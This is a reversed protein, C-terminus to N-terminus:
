AIIKMNATLKKQLFKDVQEGPVDLNLLWRVSSPVQFLQWYKKSIWQAPWHFVLFLAFILKLRFISLGIWYRNTGFLQTILGGHESCILFCNTYFFFNKMTYESILHGGLVGGTAGLTLAPRHILHCAHLPHCPWYIGYDMNHIGSKGSGRRQPLSKLRKPSPLPTLCM